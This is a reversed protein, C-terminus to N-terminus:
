AIALGIYTASSVNVNTASVQNVVFGTSDTDITDNTTVEAAASNLSLHPDNNAVIGRATDWVYWDGTSDTRKIMVFRAGGTFGCNITQSSGNGTYSFVKSVGPCSAFLYSVYTDGSINMNGQNGVVFVSATPQGGYVPSSAYTDANAAGPDNLFFYKYTTSAFDYGTTWNSTSNRKKTIILTPAVTLNHNISRPNTSDGTWCVEDFFGPARRFNWYVSPASAGWYDDEVGTNFTFGFVPPSGFNSEAATSTSDLTVSGGRLRDGFIKGTASGQRTNITLDVPFNTTVFGGGTQTDADFVSTGTTPTRMPGRRIAIYIYTIGAGFNVAPGTFGTATPIMANYGVAEAGSTNPFLANGQDAQQNYWGRMNDMIFWNGTGSSPKALIWQPEYGLNVTPIYGSGDTTFSGCSIVNDTGTLGFGGANHAFLYAVYTGGSANVNAMGTGLDYTRFVTSSSNSVYGGALITATDAQSTSNLFLYRETANAADFHNVFWNSTTDTRKVIVCGPTSGLSHSIARGDVGDGTYTVVDFFKPAKAFSWAVDTFTNGNFRSQDGITFGDSNFSTLSNSVTEQASTQNSVLWNTAGRNTDFLYHNYAANRTKWWVMGGKGSLDIGNTITQSGSGTGTTLWTSFYDEIYKPVIAVGGGFADYSAAGSTAQLPM